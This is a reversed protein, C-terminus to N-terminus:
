LDLPSFLSDNEAGCVSFFKFALFSDFTVQFTDPLRLRQPSFKAYVGDVRVFTIKNKITNCPNKRFPKRQENFSRHFIQRITMGYIRKEFTNQEHAIEQSYNNTQQQWGALLINREPLDKLM